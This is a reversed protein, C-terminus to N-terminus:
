AQGRPATAYLVRVCLHKSACVWVHQLHTVSSPHPLNQWAHIFFVQHQETPLRRARTSSVTALLWATVEGGNDRSWQLAKTRLALYRYFPMTGGCGSSGASIVTPNEKSHKVAVNSLLLLVNQKQPQHLDPLPYLKGLRKTISLPRSHCTYLKGSHQPRSCAASRFETTLSAIGGLGSWFHLHVCTWM